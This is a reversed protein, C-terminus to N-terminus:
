RKRAETRGSLLDRAVGEILSRSRPVRDLIREGAVRVRVGVFSPSSHLGAKALEGQVAAWRWYATHPRNEVLPVEGSRMRRWVYRRNRSWRWFRRRAFILAVAELTTPRQGTNTIDVELSDPLYPGGAPGSNSTRVVVHVQVEDRRKERRYNLISLWLAAVAVVATAAQIVL